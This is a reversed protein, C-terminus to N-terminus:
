RGSYVDFAPFGRKDGMYVLDFIGGMVSNCVTKGHRIM